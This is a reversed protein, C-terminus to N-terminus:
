LISLKKKNNKSIVNKFAMLSTMMTRLGFLIDDFTKKTYVQSVKMRCFKKANERAVSFNEFNMVKKVPFATRQLFFLYFIQSVFVNKRRSKVKSRWVKQVDWYVNKIKSIKILIKSKILAEYIMLKVIKQPSLSCPNSDFL